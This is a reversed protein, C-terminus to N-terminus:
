LASIDKASMLSNELKANDLLTIYSDTLQQDAQTITVHFEPEDNGDGTNNDHEDLSHFNPQRSHSDHSQDDYPHNDLTL